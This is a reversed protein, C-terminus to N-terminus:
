YLPTRSLAASLAVQKVVRTSSSPRPEAMRSQTARSASQRVNQCHRWDCARRVSSAGVPQCIRARRDSDEHRCPLTVGGQRPPRARKEERGRNARVYIERLYSARIVPFNIGGVDGLGTRPVESRRRGSPANAALALARAPHPRPRQRANPCCNQALRTSKTGIDALALIASM